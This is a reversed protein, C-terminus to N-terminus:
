LNRGINFLCAALVLLQVGNFALEVTREPLLKNMKAGFWGGIVAGAAMVPLMTLDFSAFGTSLAVATLKSIQAFLITLISCVTATKTDLSFVFILLAVNIPGGGIGLFSSFFGLLVGVAASLVLGQCHLSAIRNKNLMYLFVLTILLSLCVNQTVIVARNDGLFAILTRLIREGVAGGVVSGVALPLAIAAPIVAKQRLQKLISVISMAFVTCSSLVGITAANYDGLLDLVPKIIVGGGMGTLAGVTTAGIAILFYVSM